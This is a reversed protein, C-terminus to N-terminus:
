VCAEWSSRLRQARCLIMVCSADPEKGNWNRRCHRRKIRMSGLQEEAAAGQLTDDCM